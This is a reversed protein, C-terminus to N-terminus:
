RRAPERQVRDAACPGAQRYADFQSAGYSMLGGADAYLRRAALTVLQDRQGVFLADPGM